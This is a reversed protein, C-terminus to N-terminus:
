VVSTRKWAIALAIEKDMSMHPLDKLCFEKRTTMRKVLDFYPSSNTHQLSLLVLLQTFEQKPSLSWELVHTDCLSYLSGFFSCNQQFKQLLIKNAALGNLVDFWELKLAPYLISFLDYDDSDVTRSAVSKAEQQISDIDSESLLKHITAPTLRSLIDWIDFFDSEAISESVIEKCRGLAKENGMNALAALDRWCDIDEQIELIFPHDPITIAALDLWDEYDHLGAQSYWKNIKDIAIDRYQAPFHYALIELATHGGLSNFEKDKKKFLKQATDIWWEENVWIDGGKTYMRPDNWRLYTQEASMADKFHGIARDAWQTVALKLSQGIEFEELM